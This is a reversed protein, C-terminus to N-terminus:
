IHANANLAVLNDEFITQTLHVPGYKGTQTLLNIVRSLSFKRDKNRRRIKGNGYEKLYLYEERWVKEKWYKKFFQLQWNKEYM